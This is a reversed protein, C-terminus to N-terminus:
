NVHMIKFVSRLSRSFKFLRFLRILRILRYLRPLKSLRSLNKVDLDSDGSLLLPEFLDVPICAIFDVIFWTRFYNRAIFKHRTELTGDRREYSQFFNIILDSIFLVDVLTDISDWFPITEGMPIFSLKYPVYIATYILIIQIVASWFKRFRWEPMIIYWPPTEEEVEAMKVKSNKDTGKVYMSQQLSTFAQLLYTSGRLKSVLQQWNFFLRDVQEKESLQGFPVYPKRVDIYNRMDEEPESEGSSFQM